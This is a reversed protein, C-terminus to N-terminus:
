QATVVVNMENEFEASSNDYWKVFKEFPEYASDETKVEM